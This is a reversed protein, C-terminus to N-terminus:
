FHRKKNKLSFMVKAKPDSARIAKFASMAATGGGVILYQAYSPIDPLFKDKDQKAGSPDEKKTVILPETKKPKEKEEKVEEEIKETEESIVAAPESATEDESAEQSKSSSTYRETKQSV